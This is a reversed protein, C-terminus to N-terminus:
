TQSTRSSRDNLDDLRGHEGMGVPQGIAVSTALAVTRVMRSSPADWYEAMAPVFRLLALHEADPGEPFWPRLSPTWLREIRAHDGDIAARGSMSVYTASPIDTFSLNAVGLQEVKTTRMDVFFWIAAHVDMELPTMPRSVLAGSADVNAIMAVSINEILKGLQTLAASRQTEVKM